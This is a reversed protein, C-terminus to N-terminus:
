AYRKITYRAKIREIDFRPFADNYFTMGLEENGVRGQYKSRAKNVILVAIEKTLYQIDDPAFYRSIAVSNLHASATTGNVGREVTVTRYVDVATSTTHAVRGTGNWGRIVYLDNTQIDKVYMQEFDVRITEGINVLTGDAVTVTDDTNTLAGNLTTVSATPTSWGTVLEQESGILLLMGPSVASGVNVKLTTQSSSQSTTDAVTAATSASRNYLGWQGTLVVSDVEDGWTYLTTADPDATIQTYPGNAWHANDPLLLYDSSTLADSDNTVSTISLLPDVFLDVTGSGKLTRALTVPIFWGIEKQLYDSAEKIAQYFRAVDVGSGQLDSIIDDVTCFLQAYVTM